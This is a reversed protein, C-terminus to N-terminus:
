DTPGALGGRGGVRGGPRPLRAQEELSNWAGCDACQGVWKPASAGCANCVYAPRPQKPSTAM